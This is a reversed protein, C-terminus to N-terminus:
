KKHSSHKLTDALQSLAKSLSEDAITQALSEIHQSTAPDIHNISHSTQPPESTKPEPKLNSQLQQIVPIKYQLTKVIDPAHFRLQTLSSANKAYVTITHGKLNAVYCQQRLHDPLAQQLCQNAENLLAAKDRINALPRHQTSIANFTQIFHKTM